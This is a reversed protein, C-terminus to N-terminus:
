NGLREKRDVDQLFLIHNIGLIRCFRKIDYYTWETDQKHNLYFNMNQKSALGLEKALGDYTYHSRKVEEKLTSSIYNSM